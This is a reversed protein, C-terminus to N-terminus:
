GTAKPITITLVGDKFRSHMGTANVPGPLTFAQEFDSAYREQRFMRGNQAKQEDKGQIRSSISLLRGDLNVDIDNKSAGPINATVVYNKGQEQLDIRAGTTFAKDAPMQSLDSFAMSFDRDMRRQMRMMDNHIASWPDWVGKSQDPVPAPTSSHDAVKLAKVLDHTYYTQAGVAGVLALLGVGILTKKVTHSM